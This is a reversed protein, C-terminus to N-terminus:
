TDNEFYGSIKPTDTSQTELDIETVINHDTKNPGTLWISIFNCSLTAALRTTTMGIFM